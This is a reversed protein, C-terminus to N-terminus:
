YGAPWVALESANTYMGNLAQAFITPANSEDFVFVNSPASYTPTVDYAIRGGSWPEGLAGTYLDMLFGPGLAAVYAVNDQVTISPASFTSGAAAIETAVVPSGFTWSYYMLSNGAGEAVIDAEGTSRVFLSPASFTTGAPALKVAVFPVPNEIVLPACPGSTCLYWLSNDPAQIAINGDYLAPTSATTANPLVHSSFPGTGILREYLVVTNNPGQAGVLEYQVGNVPVTPTVSLSPASFTTGSGALSTSSWAGGTSSYFALSNNPGMAAIDAEGSPQVYLAPASYTTYSPAVFTLPNNWLYESGPSTWQYVLSNSPGQSAVDVEWSPRQFVSPPLANVLPMQVIPGWTNTGVSWTTHQPWGNQDVFYVDLNYAADAVLSLPGGVGYPNSIQALTWSGPNGDTWASTLDTSSAVYIAGSPGAFAVDLHTYIRSVASVSAGATALGPSTIAVTSWGPVQTWSSQYLAGNTGVYFVDLSETTPSAATVQAGVPAPVTQPAQTAGWTAGGDSSYADTMRGAVNIYFVDLNLPTRAVAAIGGGAEGSGAVAIELERVLSGNVASNWTAEWISGDRAIWFVDFTGPFREAASISAYPPPSYPCPTVARSRITCTAPFVTLVGSGNLANATTQVNGLGDVWFAQLESPNASLAAIPISAPAQAELPGSRVDEFQGGFFMRDISHFAPNAYFADNQNALLAVARDPSKPSPGTGTTWVRAVTLTITLNSICGGEPALDLGSSFTSYAPLIYNWYAQPNFVITGTGTATATMDQLQQPTLTLSLSDDNPPPATWTGLPGEPGGTAILGGACTVPRGNDTPLLGVLNGAISVAAGVAAVAAGIVGDVSLIGSIAGAGAIANGAAGLENGLSSYPNNQLQSAYQELNDMALAVTVSQDPSTVQFSVSLPEGATFLGNTEAGKACNSLTQGTDANTAGSANTLTCSPTNSVQCSSPFGPDSSCVKAGLEAWDVFGTDPTWYDGEGPAGPASPLGDQSLDWAQGVYVSTLTVTYTTPAPVENPSLASSTSSTTAGPPAACGAFACSAALLSVAGLSQIPTM